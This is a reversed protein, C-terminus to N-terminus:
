LVGAPDDTELQAIRDRAAVLQEEVRDLTSTLRTVEESARNARTMLEAYTPVDVNNVDPTAKTDFWSM